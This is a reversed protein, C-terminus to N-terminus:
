HRDPKKAIDGHGPACLDKKLAGLVWPTPHCTADLTSASSDATASQVLGSFCMLLLFYLYRM